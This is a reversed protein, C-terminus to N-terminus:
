SIQDLAKIVVRVVAAPMPIYGLEASSTQGQTLCYQLLSKLAVAIKADQYNKYCLIWTYTAIPYSDAGPPDPLWARLNPPLSISALAGRGTALDPKVFNGSHNELAAMPAGSQRAYGYEVYGIAGPTRKILATVGLTGRAALGVPFNVSKGTGPGNKWEMSIASLHNTFVFTTGSADSKTIVVIAM